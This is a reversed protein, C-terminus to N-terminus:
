KFAYFNGPVFDITEIKAGSQKAIAAVHESAPLTPTNEHYGILLHKADFWKRKLVYNQSFVSSESLTWTSIFVDASVNHSDLFCIPIINIEGKKITDRPSLHLRVHKKGVISELYIWQLCSILPLDYIIYTVPKQILRSILKAMNGYGGGWEVICDISNLDVNTSVKFKILHHLLHISHHSTRYIDNLILPEGVYDEALLKVLKKHSVHKELFYLEEKMWQGGRTAFYAKMFLPQQLFSFPPYPLLIKELTTNYGNWLPTIFRTISHKKLKAYNGEFDQKLIEFSDRQGHHKQELEKQYRHMILLYLKLRIARIFQFMKDTIRTKVSVPSSQINSVDVVTVREKEMFWSVLLGFLTQAKHTTM